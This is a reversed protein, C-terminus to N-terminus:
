GRVNATPPVGAQDPSSGRKVIDVRCSGSSIGNPLRVSWRRQAHDVELVLGADCAPHDFPEDLLLLDPGLQAVPVARGDVLLHIEVQASSSGKSTGAIMSAFGVWSMQPRILTGLRRPTENRAFGDDLRNARGCM